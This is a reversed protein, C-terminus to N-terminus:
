PTGVAWFIITGNQEGSLTYDGFVTLTAETAISSNREVIDNYLGWAEEDLKIGNVYLGQANDAVTCSLELALAGQNTITITHPGSTDGPGLEGFDIGTPSVNFSVAPIIDATLGVEQSQTIVGTGVTVTERNSRIFGDKDAFLDLTMDRDITIAVTGDGGTTYYQDAHVTAEACPTWGGTDDSYQTVTATFEEGVEPETNDVVIKLPSQGYSGYYFLVDSHPTPPPTTEDLIFDGAGVMPSTYDIRYMWGSTGEADEGDVSFIYLGYASDKVVYPFDGDQSAEDLAGLATPQDLYHEISADDIITSDSVSVTGDWITSHQGEIRIGITIEAPLLGLTVVPYPSGLLAPIAYATMLAKNSPTAATWNFSGDTNQFTLLDDVPDGLAATWNASSPDEDGAVIGGIGWSDTASNTSGWSEFGGSEMQTSSIYDLANTIVSSTPSEGAAVLAMIAAATDDVDSAEGVGWSWGSDDASQNNLIFDVTHTIIESDPNEGAAILGMVGWFDDNLLAADGIQTGDYASRVLSVFDRGGFDQPDEDAAAIALLMRSYDNTTTASAANSSLYDVLSPKGTKKWDHPDEDAAAVAMVVWASTAFDSISGDDNQEGALYDLAGAVESDTKALPYSDVALVPAALLSFSLIITGLITFLRPNLRKM